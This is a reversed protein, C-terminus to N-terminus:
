VNDAGYSNQAHTSPIYKGFPTSAVQGDNLLPRGRLFTITPTGVGEVGNWPSVPNKSHLTNDEIRWPAAMDVVAIDADTGVALSGKRPYIGYLRASGESLVWACNQLSGRGRAVENLVLRVMTEVGITGPPQAPLSQLKEEVTHPAHDSGVSQVTGDRIGEWLADQDARGRIPPFMKIPRVARDMIEETLTLYQPCTEATARVGAKQAAGVLEVSRGASTHVIHVRCGTAKAIELVMAVSLTEAIAPRIAALQSYLIAQDSEKRRTGMLQLIEQDECHVGVVGNLRGVTEFIEFVEDIGPPLLVHDSDFAEPDTVLAGTERNLGYGLFLKVAAAGAQFLGELENLNARGLAIGWIGFDVYALKSFHAVRQELVSASSIPPITNPMELISTIGGYAASLTSHSFDEKAEMGPDRSHVHPDIFGPFVYRGTVDIIEADATNAAKEVAAIKSGKIVVDRKVIGTPRVLAGGKLITIKRSTVSTM